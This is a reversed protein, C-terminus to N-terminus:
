GDGKTIPLIVEIVEGDDNKFGGHDILRSAFVASTIATFDKDKKDDGDRILFPTVSPRSAESYFIGRFKDKIPKLTSGSDLTTAWSSTVKAEAPYCGYEIVRSISHNKVPIALDLETSGAKRKLIAEEDNKAYAFLDHLSVDAKLTTFEWKKTPDTPKEWYRLEWSVTGEVSFNLQYHVKTDVLYQSGVITVAEKNDITLKITRSFESETSTTKGTSETIEKRRGIDVGLNASVIGQWGGGISATFRKENVTVESHTYSNTLTTKSSFGTEVGLEKISDNRFSELPTAALLDRRIIFKNDTINIFKCSLDKFNYSLLSIFKKTDAPDTCQYSALLAPDVINPTAMAAIPDYIGKYAIAIHRGLLKLIIENLGDIRITDASVPGTSTVPSAKGAGASAPAQVVGAKPINKRARSARETELPKYLPVIEAKKEPVAAKGQM